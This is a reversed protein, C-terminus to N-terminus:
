AARYGAELASLDMAISAVREVALLREGEAQRLDLVKLYRNCQKCAYLRYVGADDTYYGYTAADWNECFPCGLRKYRWATDCRACVLYREGEAGLYAFDPQGGCIPCNQRQWYVGELLPALERAWPLLFPRWTHVLLFTLLNRDLASEGEVQGRRFYQEMLAAWGQADTEPWRHAELLADAYATLHPAALGCVEQWVTRMAQPDVIGDAAHLLATGNDLIQRAEEASYRRPLPLPAVSEEQKWLALYVPALSKIREDNLRELARAAQEATVQHKLM